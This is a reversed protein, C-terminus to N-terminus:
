TARRGHGTARSELEGEVEECCRPVRAVVRQGNAVSESDDDGM